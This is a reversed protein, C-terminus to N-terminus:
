DKIRLNGHEDAMDFYINRNQNFDENMEGDFECNFSVSYRDKQTLNPEVMHMLGSPFMILRGTRPKFSETELIVCQNRPVNGAFKYNTDIAIFDGEDGEAHIYFAGSYMCGNHLHPKNWSTHDNINAWANHMNPVVNKLGLVPGIEDRIKIKIQRMMKQFIPNNDVGDNSQWGSYANSVKRGVPDRKRMADMENRMLEFYEPSMLETRHEGLFDWEFVYAPFMQKIM